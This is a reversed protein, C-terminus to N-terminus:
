VNRFISGGVQNQDWSIPHSWSSLTYKTGSKLPHAKHPHTVRGPWIMCWGKPLKKNDWNQRPFELHCGTFNTNLKVNLTFRSTDNHLAVHQGKRSYKIIMPSFWGSIADGLFHKELIPCIYKEYHACFDEFLLHSMRSFFLTKWPSNDTLEQSADKKYHIFSEFKQDYFKATKVLQDCFKETYFPTMMIDKHIKIVKGCDPHIAAKYNLAYM